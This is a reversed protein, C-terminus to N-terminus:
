KKPFSDAADDDATEYTTVSTEIADAYEGLIRVMDEMWTHLDGIKDVFEQYSEGEWGQSLTEAAQLTLGAEKEFDTTQNRIETAVNRAEAPTVTFSVEAM